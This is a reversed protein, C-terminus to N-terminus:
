EEPSGQNYLQMTFASNYKPGCLSCWKGAKPDDPADKCYPPDSPDYRGGVTCNCQKKCIPDMLGSPAWMNGMMQSQKIGFGRDACRGLQLKTGANWGPVGGTVGYLKITLSAYQALSIINKLKFMAAPMRTAADVEGCRAYSNGSGIAWVYNFWLHNGKETQHQLYDIVSTDIGMIDAGTDADASALKAAPAASTTAVLAAALATAALMTSHTCM